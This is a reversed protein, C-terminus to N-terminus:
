YLCNLEGLLTGVVNQADENRREFSDIISLLVVPHVHAKAVAEMIIALYCM